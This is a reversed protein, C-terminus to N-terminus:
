SEMIVTSYVNNEMPVVITCFYKQVKKIREYNQSKKSERTKEIALTSYKGM